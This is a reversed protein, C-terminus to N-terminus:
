LQIQIEWEEQFSEELNLDKKKIQSIKELVNTYNCELAIKEAKKLLGVEKLSERVSIDYKLLLYNCYSINNKGM